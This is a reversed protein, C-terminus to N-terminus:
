VLDSNYAASVLDELWGDADAKQTLKFVVDQLSGEGAIVRLNRDLGDSLMQELSLYSPFASM